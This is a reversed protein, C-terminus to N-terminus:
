MVPAPIEFESYFYQANAQQRIPLFINSFSPEPTLEACTSLDLIFCFNGYFSPHPMSLGFSFILPM